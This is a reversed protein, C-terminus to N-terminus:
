FYRLNRLVSSYPNQPSNPPVFGYGSAGVVVGSSEMPGGTPPPPFVVPGRNQRPDRSAATLSASFDQGSFATPGGFDGTLSNLGFPPLHSGFHQATALVIAVILTFCVAIVKM